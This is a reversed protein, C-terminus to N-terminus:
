PFLGALMEDGVDTIQEDPRIPGGRQRRMREFFEKVNEPASKIMPGISYRM